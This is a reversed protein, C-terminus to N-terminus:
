EEDVQLNNGLINYDSIPQSNEIPGTFDNYINFNNVDNKLYYKKKTDSIEDNETKFKSSIKQNNSENIKDDKVGAEKQNKETYVMYQFDMPGYAINEKTIDKSAPKSSNKTINELKDFTPHCLLLSSDNTNDKIDYIDNEGTADESFHYIDFRNNKMDDSPSIVEPSNAFDRNNDNPAVSMDSVHQQLKLLHDKNKWDGKVKNKQMPSMNFEQFEEIKNNNNSTNINKVNSFVPIMDESSEEEHYYVQQKLDANNQFVFHDHEEYDALNQFSPKEACFDLQNNKVIDIIHNNQTDEKNEKDANWAFEESSAEQSVEKTDQKGYLINYSRYKEILDVGDNNEDISISNISGLRGRSWVSAYEGLIKYM